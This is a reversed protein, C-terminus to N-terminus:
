GVLSQPSIGRNSIRIASSPLSNPTSLPSYEIRIRSPTSDKLTLSAM